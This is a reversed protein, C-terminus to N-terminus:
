LKSFDIEFLYEFGQVKGVTAADTYNSETGDYFTNAKNEYGFRAIKRLGITLSYDYPTEIINEQLSGSTISFTKIDSKSTGGNVATYFTAFKLQKKISKELNYNKLYLSIQEQANVCFSISLFM